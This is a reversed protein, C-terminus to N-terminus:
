HCGESTLIISKLDSKEYSKTSWVYCILINYNYIYIKEFQGIVVSFNAPGEKDKKDAEM